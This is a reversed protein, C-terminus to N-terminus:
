DGEPTLLTKPQDQKATAMAARKFWRDRCGGLLNLLEASKKPSGPLVGSKPGPARHM